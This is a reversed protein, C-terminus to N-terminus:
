RSYLPHSTNYEPRQLYEDPDWIWFQSVDETVHIPVNMLVSGLVPHDVRQIEAVYVNQIPNGWDDLTLPGRPTNVTISRVADMFADPDDLDGGIARIAETAWLSATYSGEAFHAPFRGYAEAFANVFEENEPLEIGELYNLSMSIMGIARDDLEPVADAQFWYLGHVDFRQDVGFDFMQEYFRLRDAGVLMIILCDTQDPIAGIFPGYDTTGLPAWGIHIIEGGAEEFAAMSGMANEQGFTYDQAIYSSTRCGLEDYMYGGFPHSVQSASWGTRVVYDYSHRQTIEDSAAISILMPVGAEEAVAAVAPGVHGCLPGIILDVQDVDILRRTQAIGQDPECATDGLFTEVPRGDIQYNNLEWYLEHGQVADQGSAAIPGTMPYIYGIRIPDLDGDPEPADPAEAPTDPAPEPAAADDGGCAAVLLALASLVSLYRVFRSRM